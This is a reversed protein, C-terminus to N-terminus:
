LCLCPGCLAGPLTSRDWCGHLGGVDERWLSLTCWGLTPLQLGPPTSRWRLFHSSARVSPGSHRKPVNRSFPSYKILIICLFTLKSYHYM